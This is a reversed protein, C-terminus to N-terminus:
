TKRMINKKNKKIKKKVRSIESIRPGIPAFNQVITM